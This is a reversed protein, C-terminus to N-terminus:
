VMVTSLRLPPVTLLVFYFKRNMAVQMAPPKVIKRFFWGRLVVQNNMPYNLTATVISLTTRKNTM